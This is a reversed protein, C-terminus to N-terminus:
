ITYEASHIPFTSHEMIRVCNCKRCYLWVLNGMIRQQSLVIVFTVNAEIGCFVLRSRVRNLASKKVMIELQIPVHSVFCESTVDITLQVPITTFCM